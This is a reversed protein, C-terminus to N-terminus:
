KLLPNFVVARDEGGPRFAGGEGKADDPGPKDNQKMHLKDPARRGRGKEGEEGNGNCGPGSEGRRWNTVPDPQVEERRTSTFIRLGM